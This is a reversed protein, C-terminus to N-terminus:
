SSAGARAKLAEYEELPMVAYGDLTPYLRGDKAQRFLHSEGQRMVLLSNQVYGREDELQEM